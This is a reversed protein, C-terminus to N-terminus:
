AGERVPRCATIEGWVIKGEITIFQGSDGILKGCLEKRSIIHTERRRLRGLPRLEVEFKEIDYYGPLFSLKERSM